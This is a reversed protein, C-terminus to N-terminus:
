PALSTPAGQGRLFRGSLRDIALLFATPLLAQLVPTASLPRLPIPPIVTRM